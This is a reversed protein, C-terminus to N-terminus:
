IMGGYRNAIQRVLYDFVISTEMDNYTYQPHYQTGLMTKYRYADVIVQDKLVNKFSKNFTQYQKDHINSNYQSLPHYSIIEIQEPIPEIMGFSHQFDKNLYMEVYKQNDTKYTDPVMYVTILPKSYNTGPQQTYLMTDIRWTEEKIYKPASKKFEINNYGDKKYEFLRGLKGGAHIYGIQAGHCTGWIPKNQALAIDVFFLDYIAEILDKENAGDPTNIVSIDSDYFIPHAGYTDSSEVVLFQYKNMINEIIRYAQALHSEPNEKIYIQVNNLLNSTKLNSKKIEVVEDVCDYFLDLLEKNVAISNDDSGYIFPNFLDFDFIIESKINKASDMFAYYIEPQMRTHNRSPIVLTNIEIEKESNITSSPTCSIPLIAIIVAFFIIGFRKISLM